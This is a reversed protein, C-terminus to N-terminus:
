LHCKSYMKHWKGSRASLLVFIFYAGGRAVMVIWKTWITYILYPLEYRHAYTHTSIEFFSQCPRSLWTDGAKYVGKHMDFTGPLSIKKDTKVTLLNGHSFCHCYRATSTQLYFPGIQPFSDVSPLPLPSFLVLCIQQQFWSQQDTM